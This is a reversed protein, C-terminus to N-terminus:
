AQRAMSREMAKNFLTVFKSMPKLESYPIEYNMHSGRRARVIPRSVIKDRTQYGIYSVVAKKADKDESEIYAFAYIDSGLEQRNGYEDVCRILALGYNRAATKVDLGYSFVDFDTVNGFEKYGLNVPMGVMIGFAMEGLIGVRETKRPDASSNLMGPNWDGGVKNKTWWASSAADCAEYNSGEVVIKHVDLEAGNFWERHIDPDVRAPFYLNDMKM